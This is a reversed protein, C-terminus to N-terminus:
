MGLNGGWRKMRRLWTYSGSISVVKDVLNWVGGPEHVTYGTQKWDQRNSHESAETTDSDQHGWPSYGVLSRQGHPEGPWFSAGGPHMALCRGFGLIRRLLLTGLFEFKDQIGLREQGRDILGSKPPVLFHM